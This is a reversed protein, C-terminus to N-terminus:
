EARFWRQSRGFAAVGVYGRVKLAGDSDLEIKCRYVKGDKPDMIEGHDWAHGDYTLGSFLIMGKMKQNKKAGSCRDCIHDEPYGILRDIAGYLKDGDIWIKMISETQHTKDDVTKWRGVVERGSQDAFAPACVFLALALVIKRM